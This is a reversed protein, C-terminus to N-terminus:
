RRVNILCKQKYQYYGEKGNTEDAESRTFFPGEEANFLGSIYYGNKLGEWGLNCLIYRNVNKSKQPTMKNHGNKDVIYRVYPKTIEMAGYGVWAHGNWITTKSVTLGLVKKKHVTYTDSGSIVVPYGKRLESVVAETNYDVVIGGSSYGFNSLTQPVLEVKSSSGLYGYKMNLNGNEGLCSMLRAIQKKTEDSMRIDRVGTFSTMRDWDFSYNKYYSPYKYFSMLQATATAVCGTLSKKAGDMPCYFNYPDKQGWNVLPGPISILSTTEPGYEYIVSDGEEWKKNPKFPPKNAMRLSSRFYDETKSLLYIESSNSLTDNTGKMEGDLVLALLPGCRKDSSMIAYGQKDGINLIHVSATDIGDSSRTLPNHISFRSSITTSIPTRTTVKRDNALRHLICELDKQAEDLSLYTSSSPKDSLSPLQEEKEYVSSCSTMLICAFLLLNKIKMLM